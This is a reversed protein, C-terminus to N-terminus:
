GHDEIVWVGGYGVPLFREHFEKWTKEPDLDKFADPYFWKALYQLAVFEYSHRAWGHYIAFVQRNKVAKLGTWGPRDLKAQLLHQAAQKEAFYGLIPGVLDGEFDDSWGAGSFVIIDPNSKLIYEASVQGSKIIGYGSAINEGGAMNILKGFMYNDGYTFFASSGGEIYVRPKQNGTMKKVVSVVRDTQEKHFAILERARKEKGLVRGLIEISKCANEGSHFDVHVTPIGYKSLKAELDPLRYPAIFLDPNLSAIKECDSVGAAAYGIDPIAAVPILAEAKYKEWVFQRRGKWYARSWGVITDQAGLAFIEEFFFSPVIRKAPQQLIIRDGLIDLTEIPEPSGKKEPEAQGNRCIALICFFILGALLINKM